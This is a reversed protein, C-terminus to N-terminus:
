RIDKIYKIKIAPFFEEPILDSSDDPKNYFTWLCSWGGRTRQRGWFRAYNFKEIDQREHNKNTYTYEHHETYREIVGLKLEVIRSKRIFDDYDKYKIFYKAM